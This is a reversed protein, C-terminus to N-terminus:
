APLPLHGIVKQGVFASVRLVHYACDRLARSMAHIADGMVTVNSPEAADAPRAARWRINPIEAPVGTGETASRDRGPHLNLQEDFLLMDETPM